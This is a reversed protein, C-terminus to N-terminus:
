LLFSVDGSSKGVIVKTAYFGFIGHEILGPISSLTADFGPVDKIPESLVLDAIIFGQDSIVSGM